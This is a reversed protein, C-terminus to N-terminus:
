RGASKAGRVLAIALGVTARAIPIMTLIAVVAFVLAVNAILGSSETPEAAFAPSGFAVSLLVLAFVAYGVLFRKNRRISNVLTQM